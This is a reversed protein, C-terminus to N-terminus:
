RDFKRLRAGLAAGDLEGPDARPRLPELRLELAPQRSELPDPEVGVRTAGLRAARPARASRPRAATASIPVWITAFPWRKGPMPDCCDHVRIGTEREGVEAGLFLRELEDRLERASAAAVSGAADDHLRELRVRRRERERQAVVDGAEERLLERPALLETIRREGMQDGEDHGPGRQPGHEPYEALQSRASVGSRSSSPGAGRKAKTATAACPQERVLAGRAKALRAAPRSEAAAGAITAVAQTHDHVHIRLPEARGCICRSRCRANSQRDGTAAPLKM